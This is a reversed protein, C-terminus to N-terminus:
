HDKGEVQKGSKLIITDAFVLHLNMFLSFFLVQILFVIQKKIMDGGIKFIEKDM